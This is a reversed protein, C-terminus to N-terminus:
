PPPEAAAALGASFGRAEHRELKRAQSWLQGAFLVDWHHMRLPAAGMAEAAWTNCTHLASYRPVARYYVSGEYPGPEYPDARGNLLSFSNAIFDQLARSQAETLVLEIVHRAGFGQQATGPLGTVLMIGPGPWLAAALTSVGKHRSNLYHMDGFGFLLYRADPLASAVFRLRPGLEDASFGLDIHWGRRM